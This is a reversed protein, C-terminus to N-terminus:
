RRAGHKRAHELLRQVEAPELERAEGYPLRGLRIPGMRTRVLREVPHKLVALSRRIQRKRGEALTLTFTTTDRREDYERRGVRAPSTVVGGPLRVGAELKRATAADVRGRATVRYVRPSERSPHLLAQTVEGDNTLLLLGETDRDLRGVPYLRPLRKPLLDMVTRRGEDDRVTTLVRRPKHLVWYVFRERRVPRGDLTIRDRAPDASDGVKAVRGGVRVRGERILTECGRRSGYGAGALIKQIRERM